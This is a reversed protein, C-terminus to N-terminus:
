IAAHNASATLPISRHDSSWAVRSGTANRLRAIPLEVARYYAYAAVLSLPPGVIALLWWPALQGTSRAFGLALLTNILPHILFLSLSMQGLLILFPWGAAVREFRRLRVEDALVLIFQCGFLATLAPVLGFYAAYSNPITAWLLAIGAIALGTTRRLSTRSQGGAIAMRCLMGLALADAVALPTETALAPHGPMWVIAGVIRAAIGAVVAVKLLAPLRRAGCFATLILILLFFQEQAGILWFHAPFADGEFIMKVVNGMYGLYLPWTHHIQLTAPSPDLFGLGVYLLVVGAMVPWIRIHRFFLLRTLTRLRDRYQGDFSALDRELVTMFFYGTVTLMTAAAPRAVNGSFFASPVYHTVVILLLMLGRLGNVASGRVRSM